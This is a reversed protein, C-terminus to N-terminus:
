PTAAKKGLVLALSGLSCFLFGLCLPYVSADFERSILVGIVVSILTQVSGIVSNATGAIHGLPEMALANLNGFLVGMCMFELFLFVTVIALPPRGEYWFTLITFGGALLTALLLARKCLPEMGFKVVLKSNLLSSIGIALAMVGFYLPFYELLGYEVQFLEQAMSLYAIFAGFNIGAVLTYLRTQQYSVAEKVCDWIVPFAFPKQYEPKLTEPQRIALLLCSIAAMLLFLVFIARWEFLFVVLQGLSPALAPVMIFIAMILSVVKAMAAGAYRDRIMAMTMVRCSSGGLGQLVRGLLMFDMTEAFISVLCGISFLGVGIYITKKRGISDGLPGWFLLGFSMGLFVMSVMLQGERPGAAGLELTIAALAPLMADIALAILSMLASMLLIFEKPGALSGM